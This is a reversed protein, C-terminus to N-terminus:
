EQHRTNSNISSLCIDLSASNLQKGLYTDYNKSSEFIYINCYVDFTM